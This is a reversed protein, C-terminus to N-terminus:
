GMPIEQAVALSDEEIGLGEAGTEIRLDHVLGTAASRRWRREGGRHTPRQGRQEADGSCYDADHRCVTPTECQEHMEGVGRLPGVAVDCGSEAERGAPDALEEGMGGSM